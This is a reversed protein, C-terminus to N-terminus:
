VLRLLVRHAHKQLLLFGHKEGIVKCDCGKVDAGIHPSISALSNLVAMYM